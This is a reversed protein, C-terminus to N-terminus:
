STIMRPSSIWCSGARAFTVTGAAGLVHQQPFSTVLWRGLPFFPVFRISAPDQLYGDRYSMAPFDGNLTIIKEALCSFSWETRPNGLWRQHCFPLKVVIGNIQENPRWNCIYIYICYIHHKGKMLLKLVIHPGRVIALNTCIVEIVNPKM